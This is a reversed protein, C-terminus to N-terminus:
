NFKIQIRFQDILTKLNFLKNIKKLCQPLKSPKLTAKKPKRSAKQLMKSRNVLKRQQKSPKLTAIKNKCIKNKSHREM